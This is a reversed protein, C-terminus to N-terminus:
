RDKGQVMRCRFFLKWTEKTSYDLIMYDSPNYLSIKNLHSLNAKQTEQLYNLVVGASIIGSTLIEIGFDKLNVTKLQM